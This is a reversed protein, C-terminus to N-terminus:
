KTRCSIRGIIDRINSYLFGFLYLAHCTIDLIPYLFCKKLRLKRRKFYYFFLTLYVEVTITAMFLGIILFALPSLFYSTFLAALFLAFVYSGIAAPWALPSDRNKKFFTYHGMGYRFEQKLLELLSTRHKHYVYVSPDAVIKFGDRCLRWLLDVEDSGWRYEEDFFYGKDFIEKKFALNNGPPLRVKRFSDRDFVIRERYIPMVSWIGENAYDTILSLGEYFNVASGGVVHAEEEKFVKLINEIWEKPVVCDCDTFVIIDGKAERVGVNRAVNLGLKELRILKAFGYESVIAPTSDESSDVVIVEIYDEVIKALSDMLDKIYKECNRTAVVISVKM